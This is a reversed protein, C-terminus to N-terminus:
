FNDMGVWVLASPPTCNGIDVLKLPPSVESQLAPPTQSLQSVAVEFPVFFTIGLSLFIKTLNKKM